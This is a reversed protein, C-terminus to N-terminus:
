MTTPKTQAKTSCKCCVYLTSLLCYARQGLTHRSVITTSTLSNLILVSHLPVLTLVALTALSLHIFQTAEYCYYYYFLIRAAFMPRGQPTHLTNLTYPRSVYLINAHSHSRTRGDNNWKSQRPTLTIIRINEGDLTRLCGSSDFEFFIKAIAVSSKHLTVRCPCKNASLHFIINNMDFCIIDIKENRFHEALWLVMPLNTTVALGVCKGM